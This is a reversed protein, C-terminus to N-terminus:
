SAEASAKALTITMGAFCPLSLCIEKMAAGLFFLAVAFPFPDGGACNGPHFCEFAHRIYWNSSAVHM